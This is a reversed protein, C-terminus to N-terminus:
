PKQKYGVPNREQEPPSFPMGTALGRSDDDALGVIVWEARHRWAKGIVDEVAEVIRHMREPGRIFIIKSDPNVHIM